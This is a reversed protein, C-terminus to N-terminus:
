VGQDVTKLSKLREQMEIGSIFLDLKNNCIKEVEEATILGREQQYAFIYKMYDVIQRADREIATSNGRAGHSSMHFMIDSWDQAELEDGVSWICCAISACDGQAITKVHAESTLIANMITIGTSVLGGPSDIVIDITDGEIANSLLALLTQYSETGRVVDQLSAVVHINRSEQIPSVLVPCKPDAKPLPNMENFRIQGM